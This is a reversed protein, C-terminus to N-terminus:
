CKRRAMCPRTLRLWCAAKSLENTGAEDESSFLSAAPLYMIAKHNILFEPALGGKLALTNFPLAHLFEDPVIYLRSIKELFGAMKGLLTTYLSYSLRIAEVFEQQFRQENYGKPPQEKPVLQALYELVNARLEQRTIACPFMQLQSSTLVFAYLTDEAIMYDVIAEDIRLQSRLLDLNVYPSNSNTSKLAQLGTIKRRLARSKVYDLKVFASDIQRLRIDL